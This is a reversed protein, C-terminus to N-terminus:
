PLVVQSICDIRLDRAGLQVSATAPVVPQYRAEVQQTSSPIQWRLSFAGEGLDTWVAKRLLRFVAWTGEEAAVVVEQGRVTATLRAGKRAPEWVFQGSPQNNREFAVARGGISVNVTPVEATTGPRLSFEMRPGAGPSFWSNSIRAMTNLFQLFAPNPRPDAGPAPGFGTARRQVVGNLENDVFTWLIGQDPVLLDTIEAPTADPGGPNFPYKAALESRFGNRCM